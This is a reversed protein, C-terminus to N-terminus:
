KVVLNIIKKPVYIEKILTKGNLHSQVRDHAKAAALAEAQEISAPLSLEARMKGNVQVPITIEDVHLLSEDWTPWSANSASPKEGLREWLEEGLHPAFPTLLQIFIKATNRTFTNAKQLHNVFVMMQSIATNFRLGEIDQTVKKITEHLVRELSPAEKAEDVIKTNLKGEGDIYERWIKRLFRAIGEIGKSNWPKMDELPGLFMEFLRLADAGYAEIVTDPDVTNGRSKSMKTNDEGLIIGQHFLRKFPEPKPLIGIDHLFHFWFRSYLLHLVAHEAGGIYFDPFGWYELVKPDVFVKDNKPDLYRLFYWCSGAWQPMTNTERRAPVWPTSPAEMSQRSVVEGTELNAYVDVWDLAKALPSEGSESPLYNEVEPLKLPLASDPLPLAYFREGDKEYAIPEKPLFERFPSNPYNDLSQFDEENIWIIPFPEGWYRQRSFLWDRLKYNVTAQAHKRAELDAIMKPISEKSDMGTYPGSNILTGHGLFPMPTQSGDETPDDKSKIVKPIPIDYRQTFEYDRADNCPVAMVAGTGYTLLVYDAIWVSLKEGNMPNIAYAGTFVGTKEKALDTRALDSKQKTNQIYQEVAEKHETTTIKLALPHEPAIVLFSAGYITDPRTTYTIIQEDHGEIDFQLNCGESRGIWATQQRKTSDPWQLDKLGELLNDAYATIRLVWQRLNRLEVPHNGRESRGDIIEENSLVTGLAPCWWVPKDDVYALGYKFLQLFIWQTWRYFDPDTTSIERQWDYSFGFRKLQRRFNDINKTTNDAPPTGTAIAHQEAPLGFAYWGMPHLVNHGCSQKYRALIDSATYGEPHGIHLGTGSPYPLMDLVYYPPKDGFNKACFTQNEEWFAQWHPEIKSFDYSTSDTAM